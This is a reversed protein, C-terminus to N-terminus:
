RLSIVLHFRGTTSGGASPVGHLIKLSSAAALNFHLFMRLVLPFSDLFYMSTTFFLLLFTTISLNKQHEHPELDTAVDQSSSVNDWHVELQLYSLRIHHNPASTIKLGQRKGM